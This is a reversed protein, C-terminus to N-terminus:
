AGVNPNVASALLDALASIPAASSTIYGWFRPHGNFLSHEFMLNAAEDLLQHPSTGQEPISSDGLVRRVENPSEGPGVPREPLSTLFDAIADILHHGAARFDDPKMEIPAARDELNNISQQMKM